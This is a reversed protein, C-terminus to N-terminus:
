SQCNRDLVGCYHKRWVPAHKDLVATVEEVMLRFIDDLTLGAEIMASALRQDQTRLEPHECMIIYVTM